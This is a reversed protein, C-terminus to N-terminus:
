LRKTSCKRIRTNPDVESLAEGWRGLADCRHGQEFMQRMNALAIDLWKMNARWTELDQPYLQLHHVGHFTVLTPEPGGHM